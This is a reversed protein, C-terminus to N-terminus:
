RRRLLCWHIWIQFSRGHALWFRYVTFLNYLVQDRLLRYIISMKIFRNTCYYFTHFIRFWSKTKNIKLANSNRCLEYFDRVNVIWTCKKSTIWVKSEVFMNLHKIPVDNTRRLNYMQKIENRKKQKKKSPYSPLTSWRRAAPGVTLAWQARSATTWRARPTRAPTQWLCGACLSTKWLCSFSWFDRIRRESTWGASSDPQKRFICLAHVVWVFLSVRELVGRRRQKM